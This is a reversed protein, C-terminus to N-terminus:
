RIYIMFFKAGIVREKGEYKGLIKGLTYLKDFLRNDEPIRVLNLLFRNKDFAVIEM